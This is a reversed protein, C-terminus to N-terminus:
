SSIALIVFMLIKIKKFKINIIKPIDKNSTFEQSTYPEKSENVGQTYTFAFLKYIPKM